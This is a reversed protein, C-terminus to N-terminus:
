SPRDVGPEVTNSACLFVWKRYKKLIEKLTRIDRADTVAFSLLVGGVHQRLVEGYNLDELTVYMGLPGIPMAGKWQQVKITDLVQQINQGFQTLPDRIQSKCTQYRRQLDEDEKKKNEFEHSADSYQRNANSLDQRLNTLTTEISKRQDKLNQIKERSFDMELKAAAKRDQLVEELVQSEQNLRVDLGQIDQSAVQISDKM